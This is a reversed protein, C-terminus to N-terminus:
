KKNKQKDGKKMRGDSRQKKGKQNEDKMMERSGRNM